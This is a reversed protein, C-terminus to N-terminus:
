NFPQLPTKVREEKTLSWLMRSESRERYVPLRGPFWCRGTMQRCWWPRVWRTQQQHVRQLYNGQLLTAQFELGLTVTFWIVQLPCCLVAPTHTQCSSGLGGQSSWRQRDCVLLASQWGWQLGLIRQFISQMMQYLCVFILLVCIYFCIGPDHYCSLEM